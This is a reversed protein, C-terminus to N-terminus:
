YEKDFEEIAYQRYMYAAPNKAALCNMAALAALKDYLCTLLPTESPMDLHSWINQPKEKWDDPVSIVQWTTHASLIPGLGNSRGIKTIIVGGDPYNRMIEELVQLGSFTKKHGSLDVRIIEIGPIKDPIEFKDKESGCWIILAQRPIRFFEAMRAIYGYKREVEDLAEGDRFAQKSYHQWDHSLLRWSDQDIVDSIVAESNNTIGFEIKIDAFRYGFIQFLGELFLFCKRLIEDIKKLHDSEIVIDRAVDIGLYAGIEYIPKSPHYLKWTEGHPNIIFPDDEESDLGEIIVRDGIVLGGKTTKLFYETKTRHFRLAPERKEWPNRKVYSGIALRRAVAELYIMKTKKAVFEVPSIQEKYAVPLGAKELLEFVKCTVTTCYEGKSGIKKTFKPDNFATTDDKNELIVCDPVGQIEFIKKTKGEYILNGKQYM